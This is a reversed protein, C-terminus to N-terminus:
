NLISNVVSKVSLKKIATYTQGVGVFLIPIGTSYVMSITSGVKDDVTDYKTLIIGDINRVTENDKQIESLANNFSVLQDVGDNGVLAEGVFLILDPNNANILKVLQQMLFKNNQMRGCTDVLVVDYNNKKAYKVSEMCIGSPDVGYNQAFIETNLCKGHVKLQEIAGSRFTDCATILCKFNNQKLWYTIKALSKKYYFIGQLNVLEM